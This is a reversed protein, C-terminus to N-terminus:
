NNIKSQELLRAYLTPNNRLEQPAHKRYDSLTWDSRENSNLNEQILKHIPTRKPLATLIHETEEYNSAFANLWYAKIKGEKDGAIRGDRMATIILAEAKEKNESAQMARKKQLYSQFAQLDAKALTLMENREYTPIIKQKIANEVILEPTDGYKLGQIAAIIEDTSATASLGLVNIIPTLDTKMQEAYLNLVKNKDRIPKNDFYLVLANENSPIDCISCEYLTCSTIVDEDNIQEIVFDTIGISAAKIFGSNVKGAVKVAESDRMDFVPTGILKNDEKAVDSWRGIVGNDPDHNYYMIPNKAFRQLNIGNTLVKFGHSNLSEDSMIFRNM